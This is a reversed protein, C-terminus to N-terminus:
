SAGVIERSDLEDGEISNLIHDGSGTGHADGTPVIGGAITEGEGQTTAFYFHDVHGDSESSKGIAADFNGELEDEFNLVGM